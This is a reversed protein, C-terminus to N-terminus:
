PAFDKATKYVFIPDASIGQGFRRDNFIIKNYHTSTHEFTRGNILPFHVDENATVGVQFRSRLNKNRKRGVKWAFYSSCCQWNEMEMSPGGGKPTLYPVQL